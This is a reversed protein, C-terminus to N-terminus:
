ERPIPVPAYRGIFHAFLPKGQAVNAALVEPKSFARMKEGLDVLCRAAEDDEETARRKLDEWDAVTAHALREILTEYFRVDELPVMAIPTSSPGANSM